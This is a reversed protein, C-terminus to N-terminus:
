EFVSNKINRKVKQVLNDYKKISCNLIKSANQYSIKSLSLDLILKDNDNLEEYRKNVKKVAEDYYFRFEPESLKDPNESLEVAYINSDESIYNDLSLTNINSINKQCLYHRIMSKIKRLVCVYLFTKFNANQDERYTQTTEMLTIYSEQQIDEKYFSLSPYSYVTDSVLKNILLRYQNFLENSAYEDKQHIMYILEYANHM